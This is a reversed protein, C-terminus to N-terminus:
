DCAYVDVCRKCAAQDLAHIQITASSYLGIFERMLKVMLANGM